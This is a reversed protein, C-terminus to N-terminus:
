EKPTIGVALPQVWWREDTNYYLYVRSAPGRYQGPVECIVNINVEHRADKALGRWYLVLERGRVEFADIKGGKVLNRLEQMDAPLACGGPLGIIAVAMGQDQGSANDLTATVRVSEGEKATASALSTTLRVPCVNKNAPTLAMYSWTVTHPFVNNGTMEVRITNEGAELLKDDPLEVVIPDTTGAAFAKVGVAEARGNVFLKLEGAEATKKNEKTYAILAKLALITSQTSGYGGHGGRQKGLWDAGLRINDGFDAQQDARLWAL